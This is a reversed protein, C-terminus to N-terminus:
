PSPVNLATVDNLATWYAASGTVASRSSFRTARGLLGTATSEQPSGSRQSLRVIRAAM